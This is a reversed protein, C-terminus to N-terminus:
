QKLRSKFPWDLLKHYISLDLIDDMKAINFYCENEDIKIYINRLESNVLSICQKADTQKIKWPTSIRSKVDISGKKRGLGVYLADQKKKDLEGNEIFSRFKPSYDFMDRAIFAWQKKQHFYLLRLWEQEFIVDPYGENTESSDVYHEIWKAKSLEEMAIVSLHFSSPYSKNCYLLISDFHLRIANRLSEIAMKNLKYKSIGESKKM